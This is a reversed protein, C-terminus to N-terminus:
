CRSPVVNVFRMLVGVSVVETSRMILQENVKKWENTAMKTIEKMAKEKSVGHQNMYCDICSAVHGRDQETEDSMVDNVLRIFEGGAQNLKPYTKLWQFSM